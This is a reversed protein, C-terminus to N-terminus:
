RVAHRSLSLSRRLLWVVFIVGLFILLLGLAGPMIWFSVEDEDVIDGYGRNLELHARYFGVSLNDRVEVERMRTAGPLVAQPDIIITKTDGFLPVLTLRGYPNTHVSGSNEYTFHFRLPNEESPISSTKANNFLGFARLSGEEKTNGLVRVFFLTAIRSEIAINAAQPLGSKLVPTFTFVVSGYRGGAEVGEPVKVSIPVQVEEGSLLDFSKKPTSFLDKLPYAGGNKGLLVVSEDAPSQQAVPAVDEYSATVSLPLATGNSLTLMTVTEQGPNITLEVKAPRIVFTGTTMDGEALATGIGSFFVLLLAVVFTPM